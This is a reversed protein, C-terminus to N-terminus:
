LSSEGAARRLLFCSLGALSTVPELWFDLRLAIEHQMSGGHPEFSERTPVPVFECQEAHSPAPLIRIQTQHLGM